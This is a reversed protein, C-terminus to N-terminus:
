RDPLRQDSRCCHIQPIALAELSVASFFDGDIEEKQWTLVVFASKHNPASCVALSGTNKGISFMLSAPLTRM